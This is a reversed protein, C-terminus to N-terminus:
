FYVLSTTGNAFRDIPGSLDLGVTVFNVGTATNDLSVWGSLGLTTNTANYFNFDKQQHDTSLNNSTFGKLWNTVSDIAGTLTDKITTTTSTTNTSNNTTNQALTASVLLAGVFIRM